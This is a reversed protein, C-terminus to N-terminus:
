CSTVKCQEFDESRVVALVLPLGKEGLVTDKLFSLALAADAGAFVLLVPLYLRSLLFVASYCVFAVNSEALPGYSLDGM